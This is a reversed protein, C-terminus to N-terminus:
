TTPQSPTTARREAAFVVFVGLIAALPGLVLCLVALLWYLWSLRDRRAALRAFVIVPSIWLLAVGITIAVIWAVETGSM